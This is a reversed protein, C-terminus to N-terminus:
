YLTYKKIYGKPWTRICLKRWEEFAVMFFCYPLSVYWYIPSIPAAGFIQSSVEPIYTLCAAVVVSLLLSANLYLNPIGYKFISVKRTQCTFSTFIQQVMIAWFVATQANTTANVRQKLDYAVTNCSAQNSGSSSFCNGEFLIDWPKFGFDGMVVFYAWMTGVAETIGLVLYALGLLNSTVLRDKKPNRPRRLMIDAEPKEYAYAIGPFLDTGLDIFIVLMTSQPLPIQIIIYLLYPLLEPLTHIMTHVIAKKLNDFVLRGQKIANVISAFNDDRLVMNAAEKSVSSGSGMAVGIDAKKLAPSDNVGDGTVAVISGRRQCGEVIRLKQQPSTRAFVVERFKLIEDLQEETMDKLEHGAVVVASIMSQDVESLPIGERKAVDNATEGKIINVQRAIAMATIPHDGTVMIVQIGATRCQNVAEPVAARPPDILAVLGLFCLNQDPYNPNEGDIVFDPGFDEGNVYTQCLGLVREGKGGLEDYANQFKQQWETTLEVQEGNILITSCRDIIREPAGKMLLVWRGDELSHITLLYKNTSNFPVKHYLPNKERYEDVSVAEECFRLLAVDSANGKTQRQGIPLDEQGTEFSSENCLASCRFLEQFTPANADFSAETTTTHTTQIEGDLWIHALTMRNQTLTGTKDSCITSCSGLTEVSSLAKVVVNRRAMNQATLTQMVRLNPLMGEPINGIIVGITFIICSAIPYIFLGLIFFIIGTTVSMFVIFQVFRSIEIELPTRVKKTKTTLGAIRGIVTEDGVKVVMGRGEGEIVSSSFFALNKTELPNEDTIEESRSQPEAEGTLSSNDVKLGTCWTVRVDAPVKDGGHFWVLDGVVLNVPDINQQRGDRIVVATEPVLKSFGAVVRLAKRDQYYGFLGTFMVCVVIVIALYINSLSNTNFLFAIIALGAAALLLGSFGGLMHEALIFYWPTPKAPTLRNPGDRKLRARADEETLGREADTKFRECLEALPIKHEDMQIEAKLNAQKGSKELRKKEELREKELSFRSAIEFSKTRAVDPEREPIPRSFDGSRRPLEGSARPREMSPRRFEGSARNTDLSPRGRSIDISPRPGDAM